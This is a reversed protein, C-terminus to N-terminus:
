QMEGRIYARALARAEFHDFAHPNGELGHEETDAAIFYLIISPDRPSPIEIVSWNERNRHKFHNLITAALGVDVNLHAYM